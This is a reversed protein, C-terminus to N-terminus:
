RSEEAWDTLLDRALGPLEDFSMAARNDMLTDVVSELVPAPVDDTDVGDGVSDLVGTADEAVIGLALSWMPLDALRDGAAIRAEVATAIRSVDRSTLDLGEQHEWREVLMSSGSPYTLSQVAAHAATDTDYAGIAVLVHVLAEATKAYEHAADGHPYGTEEFATRANLYRPTLRRLETSLGTEDALVANMARHWDPLEHSPAAEILEPRNLIDTM